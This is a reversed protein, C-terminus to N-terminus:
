PPGKRPKNHYEVVALCTPADHPHARCATMFSSGLLWKRLTYWQVLAQMRNAAGAGSLVVGSVTSRWRNYQVAGHLHRDHVLIHLAGESGWGQRLVKLLAPQHTTPARFEEM